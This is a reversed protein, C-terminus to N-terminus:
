YGAEFKQNIWLMYWQRFVTLLSNEACLYLNMEHLCLKQERKKDCRKFIHFISLERKLSQSRGVAKLVDDCANQLGWHHRVHYTLKSLLTIVLGIKYEAVLRHCVPDTKKDTRLKQKKVKPIPPWISWTNCSPITRGNLRRLPSFNSSPLCFHWWRYNISFALHSSLNLSCSATDSLHHFSSGLQAIDTAIWFITCNPQFSDPLMSM